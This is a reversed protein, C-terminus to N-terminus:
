ERGLVQDLAWCGQAHEAPSRLHDLLEASPCGAEELADALVGLEGWRREEDLARGLQLVV